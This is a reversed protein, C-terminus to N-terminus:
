VLRFISFNAIGCYVRTTFKVGAIIYNSLNHFPEIFKSLNFLPTAVRFPKDANSRIFYKSKGYDYFSYNISGIQQTTPGLVFNPRAM